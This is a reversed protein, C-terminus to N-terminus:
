RRIKTLILTSKRRKPSCFVLRMHGFGVGSVVSESEGFFDSFEPQKVVYGREGLFELGVEELIHAMVKALDSGASGSVIDQVDEGFSLGLHDDIEFYRFLPDIQRVVHFEFEDLGAVQRGLVM